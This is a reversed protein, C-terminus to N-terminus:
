RKCTLATVPTDGHGKIQLILILFAFTADHFIHNNENLYLSVVFFKLRIRLFLMKNGVATDLIKIQFSPACASTKESYNHPFDFGQYNFDLRGSSTILLL